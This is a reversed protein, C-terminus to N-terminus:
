LIQHIESYHTLADQAKLIIRLRSYTTPGASHPTLRRKAPQVLMWVEEKGAAAAKLSANEALAKEYEARFARAPQKTPNVFDYKKM